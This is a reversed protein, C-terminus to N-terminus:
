RVLSVPAGGNPPRAFINSRAGAPPADPNLSLNPPLLTRMLAAMESRRFGKVSLRPIRRTPVLYIRMVRKTTGALLEGVSM